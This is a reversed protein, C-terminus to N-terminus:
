GPSRQKSVGACQSADALDIAWEPCPGRPINHTVKRVVWKITWLVRHGMNHYDLPLLSSRM